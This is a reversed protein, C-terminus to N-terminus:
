LLLTNITPITSTIIALPALGNIIINRPTMQHQHHHHRRTAIPPSPIVAASESGSVHCWVMWPSGAPGRPRWRTVFHSHSTERRPGGPGRTFTINTRKNLHSLSLSFINSTSSTCSPMSPSGMGWQVVSSRGRGEPTPLQSREMYRYLYVNKWVWVM